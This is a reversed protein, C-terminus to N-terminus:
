NKGPVDRMVRGLSIKYTETPHLGSLDKVSIPQGIEQRLSMECAVRLAVNKEPYAGLVRQQDLELVIISWEGLPSPEGIYCLDNWTDKKLYSLFENAELYSSSRYVSDSWGRSDPRYIVCCPSTTRSEVFLPRTVIISEPLKELELLVKWDGSGENSHLFPTYIAVQDTARPNPCLEQEICVFRGEIQCCWRQTASPLGEDETVLQPLLPIETSLRTLNAVVSITQIPSDIAKPLRAIDDQTLWKM